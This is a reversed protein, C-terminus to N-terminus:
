QRHQGGEKRRGGELTRREQGADGKPCEELVSPRRLVRTAWSVRVEPAALVTPPLGLHGLAGTGGPFTSHCAM